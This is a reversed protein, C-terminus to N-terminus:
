RRGEDRWTLIEARTVKGSKKRLDRLERMAQSSAELRDAGTKAGASTSQDPVITVSQGSEVAKFLEDINAKAETLSVNKMANEGRSVRM